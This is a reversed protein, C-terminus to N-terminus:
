LGFLSIHKYERELQRASQSKKYLPQIWKNWIVDNYARASMSWNCFPITNVMNNPLLM